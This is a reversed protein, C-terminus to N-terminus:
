VDEWAGCTAADVTECLSIPSPSDWLASAISDHLLPRLTPDLLFARDPRLWLVWLDSLLQTIIIVIGLRHGIYWLYGVLHQYDEVLCRVGVIRGLVLSWRM